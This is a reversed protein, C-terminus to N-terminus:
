EQLASAITSASATYGSRSKSRLEPRSVVQVVIRHFRGDSRPNSPSYAISYQASLERAISDYVSRLEGIALPFFAEGGTEQALTKMAYQSESFYRHKGPSAAPYQSQLGITYITVGSKRSLDLVDDFSMLSATDEGDSLIAIARRRVEGSNRAPAGFDKLAVYLANNLATGGHASTERVAKDLLDRDATLAQVVNVRDNFAVVAGRDGQRLSHLFGVAATHVNDMKDQMSSSTDILVILDIPVRSSEFFKVDQQVGDEYVAFDDSSLGTVFHKDHDTVTVNLAVLSAGSRFVPPPAQGAAQQGLASAVVTLLLAPTVALSKV